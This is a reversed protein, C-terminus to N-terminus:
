RFTVGVADTFNSTPGPNEDRYWLTFNWTEGPAVAAQGAGIPLNTLDLQLQIRRPAGSSQVQGPAVFRGIQGILCLNGQSGGPGVEFKVSATPTVNRQPPRRDAQVVSAGMGKLDGRM